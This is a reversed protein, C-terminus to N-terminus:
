LKRNSQNLLRDYLRDCEVMLAPEVAEPVVRNTQNRNDFGDGPLCCHLRDSLQKWKSSSTGLQEYSVPILNDHLDCLDSLYRYGIIWQALWYNLTNPEDFSFPNEGLNQFPQHTDGFEHHGLWNFYSKQYGSLNSFNGHQQLLSTAQQIPLRFPILFTSQDFHTALDPLLGISQNMKSLYRQSGMHILWNEIFRTYGQLQQESLQAPLKIPEDRTLFTTWFIGDLAEVSKLNIQISDKHDREILKSRKASFKGIWKCISPALVFPMCDYRTSSFEGTSAFCRLLSTSGSRALGSM